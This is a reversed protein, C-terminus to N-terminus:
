PVSVDPLKLRAFRRIQNAQLTVKMMNSGGSVSEVVPTAAVPNWTTLNTSVEIEPNAGSRGRAIPYRFVLNGDELRGSWPPTNPKEPPLGMLFELANVIGDGDPDGGPGQKNAPTTTFVLPQWTTFTVPTKEFAGADPEPGKLRSHNRADRLPLTVSVFSGLGRDIAPSDLTLAHTPVLGGNMALPELGAPFVANRSFVLDSTKPLMFPTDTVNGGLSDANGLTQPNQGLAHGTVLCNALDAGDFPSSVNSNVVTCHILKAPGRVANGVQETSSFNGSLTCNELTANGSVHVAGLAAGNHCNSVTCRRMILTDQADTHSVAAAVGGGPSRGRTLNLSDLINEDATADDDWSFIAYLSQGDITVGQTMSADVVVGGLIDPLRSLLTITRPTNFFVPDFTIVLRGPGTNGLIERLSGPGSDANTTVVAAVGAELAGIDVTGNLIRTNGAQDFAFSAAAANDGADILPSTSEPYDRSDLLPDKPIAISGGQDGPQMPPMPAAGFGTSGDRIGIFNHGDSTFDGSLDPHAATAGTDLNSAVLTNVLTVTSSGGSRIGGGDGIDDNTAVAYKHSGAANDIVTCGFLDVTSNMAFIGGGHEMSLCERFRCTRFAATSGILCVGGGNDHAECNDFLCRNFSLSAGGSAFLGGGRGESLVDRFDCTNFAVEVLGVAGTADVKVLGGDVGGEGASFVSGGGDFDVNNFTTKGVASPNIKFAAHAYSSAFKVRPGGTTNITMPRNIEFTTGSTSFYSDEPVNFEITVSSQTSFNANTLTSTFTGPGFGSATSTVIFTEANGITALLAFATATLIHQNM